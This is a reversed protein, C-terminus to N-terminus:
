QAPLQRFSRHCANCTAVVRQLRKPIADVYNLEAEQKLLAVQEGLQSSLQLFTQREGPSLALTPLANPIDNVTQLMSSAVQAIESTRQRRERDLEVETLMREFMLDNLRQMLHQLRESQVAHLAPKGTNQLRPNTHQEATCAVLLLVGLIFAYRKVAPKSPFTKMAVRSSTVHVLCIM